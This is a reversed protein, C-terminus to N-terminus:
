ILLCGFETREVDGDFWGLALPGMIFGCVVFVISGSLATRELRGAILSYGSILLAFIALEIYM